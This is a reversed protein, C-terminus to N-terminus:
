LNTDDAYALVQILNDLELGVKNSPLNLGELWGKFSRCSLGWAINLNSELTHKGRM